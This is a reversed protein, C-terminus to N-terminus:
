KLGFMLKIEEVIIRNNSLRPVKHQGGLKGKRKLWELFSGEELVIIKPMKIALDGQRKATYDSNCRKLANDLLRTFLEINNPKKSFEILWEHGPDTESMYVPAVTYDIPMAGSEKCAESIALDTNEIVLEEGFANIFLKTRGTISFTHPKTGTFQITDGIIYRWLGGLTTIVMAYNVGILVENLPITNEPTGSLPYFEYFVGHHTLLLLDQGDQEAQLGFFGESANYTELYHMSASPILEKFQERYPNFNVGGHVFLELNPWVDLIQTEGSVDLVKKILLLVWTPVGSISSVNEFRTARAMKELKEEWNELMAIDMNPTSKWNAWGPLHNMLVASLDGYYSKKYFEHVKTSGGVLLGKGKFIQTNPNSSCYQTLAERSGEYHNFEMSEYSIPIFKSTNSTTGSSKAFWTIDGPWLLQQEGAMTRGIYPELDEYNVVPILQRFEDYRATEGIGYKKGYETQALKRVLDELLADQMEVSQMLNERLDQSRQRFYWNIIPAIMSFSGCYQEFDDYWCCEPMSQGM